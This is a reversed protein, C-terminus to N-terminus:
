IFHISCKSKFINKINFPFYHFLLGQKCYPLTGLRTHAWCLLKIYFFCKIVISVAFYVIRLYRIQNLKGFICWIEGCDWWEQELRASHLVVEESSGSSWPWLHYSGNCGCLGSLGGRSQGQSRHQHQKGVRYIWHRSGPHAAWVNHNENCPSMLQQFVGDQKTKLTGVKKKKKADRKKIHIKICQGVYQKKKTHFPCQSREFYLWMSSCACCWTGSVSAALQFEAMMRKLNNRMDYFFIDSRAHPSTVHYFIFVHKSIFFAATVWAPAGAPPSLSRSVRVQGFDGDGKKGHSPLHLRLAAPSCCGCVPALRHSLRDKQERVRVRQRGGAPDGGGM